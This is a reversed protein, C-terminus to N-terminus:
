CNSLFNVCSIWTWDWVILWSSRLEVITVMSNDFFFFFFWLLRFSVLFPFYIM